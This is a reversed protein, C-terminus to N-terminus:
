GFSDLLNQADKRVLMQRAGANKHWDSFAKAAALALDLAEMKSLPQDEPAHLSSGYCYHDSPHSVVVYWGQKYMTPVYSFRICWGESILRDIRAEFSESATRSNWSEVLEAMLDDPDVGSFEECCLSMDTSCKTCYVAVSRRLLGTSINRYSRYYDQEADAGCFPCPKLTETM